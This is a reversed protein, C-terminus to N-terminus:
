IQRSTSCTFADSSATPSALRHTMMDDLNVVATRRCGCSQSAKRAGYGVDNHQASGDRPCSRCQPLRARRLTKLCEAENGLLGHFKRISMERQFLIRDSWLILNGRIPSSM